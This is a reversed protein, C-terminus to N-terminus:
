ATKGTRKERLVYISEMLEILELNSRNPALVKLIDYLEGGTLEEKGEKYKELLREYIKFVLTKPLCAEGSLKKLIEYPLIRNRILYMKVYDTDMALKELVWVPTHMNEAVRARVNEDKHTSLFELENPDRSEAAQNVVKFDTISPLDEWSLFEHSM